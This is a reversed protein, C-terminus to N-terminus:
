FGKLRQFLTLPQCTRADPHLLWHWRELYYNSRVAIGATGVQFEVASPPVVCPLSAAGKKLFPLVGVGELGTLFDFDAVEANTYQVHRFGQPNFGHSAMLLKMLMALSQCVCGPKHQGIKPSRILRKCHLSKILLEYLKLLGAPAPGPVDLSQFAGQVPKASWEALLVNRENLGILDFVPDVILPNAVSGPVMEPRHHM